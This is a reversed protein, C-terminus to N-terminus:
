HYTHIDDMHSTRNVLWFVLVITLGFNMHRIFEPVVLSFLNDMAQFAADVTGLSLDTQKFRLWLYQFYATGVAIKLPM